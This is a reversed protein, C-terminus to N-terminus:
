CRHKHLLDAAYNRADKSFYIYKDLEAILNHMPLYSAYLNAKNALVGSWSTETSTTKTYNM